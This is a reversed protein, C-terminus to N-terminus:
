VNQDLSTIRRYGLRITPMSKTIYNDGVKQWGVQTVGTLYSVARTPDQYDLNTTRVVVHETGPAAFQHLMLIRQCLRHTRVEFGSRYSSFPDLRAPWVKETLSPATEDHDGYDFLVVMPWEALAAARGGTLDVPPLDRSVRPVPNGYAIAKLYLNS